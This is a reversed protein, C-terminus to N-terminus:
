MAQPTKGSEWVTPIGEDCVFLFGAEPGTSIIQGGDVILSRVGGNKNKSDLLTTWAVTGTAVDLAIVAGKM